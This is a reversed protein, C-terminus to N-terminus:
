AHRSGANSSVVRDRLDDLWDVAGLDRDLWSKRLQELHDSVMEAFWRHRSTLAAGWADAAQQSRMAVIAEVALSAITAYNGVLFTDPKLCTRAIELLRSALQPHPDPSAPPASEFNRYVMKAVELTLGPQSRNQLPAELLVTVEGMREIPMMAMYKRVASGVAVLEDHNGSDRHDLIYRWLLLSLVARQTEDFRTVEALCILPAPIKPAERVIQGLLQSPPHPEPGGMDCVSDFVSEAVGIGTKWISPIFATSFDLIPKVTRYVPYIRAAIGSVGVADATAPASTLPSQVQWHAILAAKVRESTTEEGHGTAALTAPVAGSPCLAELVRCFDHIATKWNDPFFRITEVDQLIPRIIEYASCVPALPGAPVTAAVVPRPLSVPEIPTKGPDAYAPGRDSEGRARYEAVVRADTEEFSAPDWFRSSTEGRADTVELTM